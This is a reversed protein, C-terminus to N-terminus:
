FVGPAILADLPFLRKLAAELHVKQIRAVCSAHPVIAYGNVYVTLDNRNIERFRQQRTSSREM